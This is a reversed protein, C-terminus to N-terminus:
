LSGMCGADIGIPYFAPHEADSILLLTDLMLGPAHGNDSTLPCSVSSSQRRAPSNLPMGLRLSYGFWRSRVYLRIWVQNLSVQDEPFVESSSHSQLFCGWVLLSSSTLKLWYTEFDLNVVIANVEVYVEIKFEWFNLVSCIDLNLSNTSWFEQRFTLPLSQM